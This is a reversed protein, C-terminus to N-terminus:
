EQIPIEGRMAAFANRGIGEPPRGGQGRKAQGGPFQAGTEPNNEL